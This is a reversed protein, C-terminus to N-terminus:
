SYLVDNGLETLVEYEDLLWGEIEDFNLLNIEDYLGLIQKKNITNIAERLKYLLSKMENNMAFVGM